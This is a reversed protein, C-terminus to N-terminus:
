KSTLVRWAIFLTFAIYGFVALWDQWNDSSMLVQNEM